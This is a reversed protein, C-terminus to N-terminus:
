KSAQKALEAEIANVVVEDSPKVKPEFRNVIQGDRGILFKTFNWKIEGAFKPNTDAGTLFKYLDCQGDGKVVVKAFMPFKVQYEDTCFAKIEENSGPEQEGFENAPFGLIVLGKDAYREHLAQLDKYQPTLGCQSAVNVMLVVKGQYKSLHVDSGDIDKMTFKLVAPAKDAPASPPPSAVPPQRSPAAPPPAATVISAVFSWAILILTHRKMALAM